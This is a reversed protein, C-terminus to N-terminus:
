ATSPRQDAGDGNPQQYCVQEEDATRLVQRCRQPLSNCIKNRIQAAHIHGGYLHGIVGVLEADAGLAAVGCAVNAAGGPMRTTKKLKVVPVPAGQAIRSAPGEQRIDLMVDGIVLVVPPGDQTEDTTSM